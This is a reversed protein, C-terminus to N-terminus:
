CNTSSVKQLKAQLISELRTISNVLSQVSQNLTLMQNSSINEMNVFRQIKEGEANLIHSLATEQMAVSQIVDTFAQCRPTLIFVIITDTNNNPNPDPTSSTVSATNIFPSTITEPITAQILITRTQQNFLTGLNLTDIWPFFTTGGDISYQVQTLFPPIADTLIVNEASSPGLNTINIEFTIDTGPEVPNPFATKQIALDALAQITVAVENTTIDYIGPIGGIVPTYAYRIHATNITPNVAPIFDARAEFTVTVSEGGQVDPLAFGINPNADAFSVQNILVSGLVFSLGNPITDQFFLDTLPSTCTNTLTVSYQVTEGVDVFSRNVTKVPTFKPVLIETLSIDDIAYDNGIVEPGESLFEVTLTTNNLSNIVTGIEKWEPANTNVPILAGLTAQYIVNNNQDLIVVGLEPNPYGPVKFLNLIWASFLYNTNPQVNVVSKFFIAGPNFGNVIMMRGTENGVTHDAIRWWAGINTSMSNTMINQVTYEGDLPTFVDPNPLVYTFDPTVEPYPEVPAGTNPPTGAPFFGFTGNDADTILNEDTTIACPDLIDEIPTYIVPGNLFNQNTIDTDNVTVFLTDPSLSDLNTSGTPPNNVTSIPPNIGEPIPGITANNFNGPTAVGPTGYSEVIRYQGNPVNTFTYNGNSDTLVTLRLSTTINQLVISVNAIGSDGSTISASRDRDFIVRGTINAM